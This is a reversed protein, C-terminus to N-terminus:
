NPLKPAYLSSKSRQLRCNEWPTIQLTFSWTVKAM